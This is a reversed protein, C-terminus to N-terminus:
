RPSGSVSRLVTRSGNPNSSVELAALRSRTADWVLHDYVRVVYGQADFVWVGRLECSASDVYAFASRGRTSTSSSDATAGLTAALILQPEAKLGALMGLPEFRGGELSRRLEIAEEIPLDGFAFLAEGALPSAVEGERLEFQFQIPPQHRRTVQVEVAHGTAGAHPVLLVDSEFEHGSNLRRILRVRLTDRGFDLVRADRLRAVARRTAISDSTALPRLQHQLFTVSREATRWAPQMPPVPRQRSTRRDLVWATALLGAGLVTLVLLFARRGAARM